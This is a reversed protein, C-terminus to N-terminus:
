LGDERNHNTDTVPVECGRSMEGRNWHATHKNADLLNKLHEPRELIIGPGAEVLEKRSGYGWLVGVSGIGNARAAHIDAARDGIMVPPSCIKIEKLLSRLQEDKSIGITGGSIYSFYKRIQFFDLIKETFDARKYTCIAMPIERSAFFQLADPIGPYLANETYGIRGYRERYKDIMDLILKESTSGTVKRFTSDLPPGIFPSVQHDTLEPFGFAQLSYNLCRGIGPKPDFLTGDLDFILLSRHQIICRWRM